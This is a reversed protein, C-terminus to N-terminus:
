GKNKINEGSPQSSSVKLHKLTVIIGESQNMGPERSAKEWTQSFRRLTQLKEERKIWISNTSVKTLSQHRTVKLKKIIARTTSAVSPSTSTWLLHEQWKTTTLVTVMCSKLNIEQYTTGTQTRWCKRLIPIRIRM